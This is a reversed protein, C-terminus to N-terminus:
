PATAPPMTCSRSTPRVQSEAPSLLRFHLAIPWACAIIHEGSTAYSVLFPLRPFGLPMPPMRPGLQPNVKHLCGLERLQDRISNALGSRHPEATGAVDMSAQGAHISGGRKLAADNLM